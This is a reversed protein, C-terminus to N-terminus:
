PALKKRFSLIGAEVARALLTRYSSSAIRSAETANTLFGLEVLVAPCPAEKLVYFRARRVGRDSGGVAGVLARQIEYALLINQRDYRNGAYSKKQPRSSATSAAGAPTLCYTEIGRAGRSQAANFHISVFLDPRLGRAKRTRDSLEMGRDDTRLLTVKMGDRRLRSALIRAVDLTLTKEKLGGASRAGEDRGGHGPDIVIHRYRRITQPIRARLLPDVTKEFDSRTIWLDDRHWVAPSSMWVQVGNLRLVREKAEMSLTTWRSRFVVRERGRQMSPFGYFSRISRASVYRTGRLSLAPLVPPDWGTAAAGEQPALLFACVATATLFSTGWRNMARSCLASFERGDLAM